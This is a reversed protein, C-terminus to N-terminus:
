KGKVKIPVKKSIFTFVLLIFVFCFRGKKYTENGKLFNKKM